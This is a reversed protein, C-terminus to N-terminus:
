GEEGDCSQGVMRPSHSTTYLRRGLAQKDRGSNSRERENTECSVIRPSHPELEYHQQYRRGSQQQQQPEGQSEEQPKVKL